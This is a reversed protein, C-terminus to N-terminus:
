ELTVFSSMTPAGGEPTIPGAAAPQGDVRVIVRFSLSDRYFGPGNSTEVSVEKRMGVIYESFDFLGIDGPTGLPKALESFVVPRTLINFNGDNSTMVPILAGGAGIQVSLATLMPITSPHAVWVAKTISAAVMRAFMATLDEYLIQGAATRPVVVRAASNFIGLPQGAGTGFLFAKDMGYATALRMVLSLQNSFDLGDAVLPNSAECFIAGIKAHLKIARPKAVQPTQDVGEQMWVMQLGAIDGGSRDTVDWSPVTRTASTMPWVQARPRVLEAALGSDLWAGAMQDPVIIGMPNDGSTMVASQMTIRPDHRGSAIVSLFEADSEWPSVAHLTEPFLDAWRPSRPRAHATPHAPMSRSLGSGRAAHTAALEDADQVPEAHRDAENQREAVALKDRNAAFATRLTDVRAREDPTMARRATTIDDNIQRIEQHIDAARQRLLKLNSTAVIAFLAGDPPSHWACIAVIALTACFVPDRVLSRLAATVVAATNLLIKM